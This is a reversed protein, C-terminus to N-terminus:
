SDACRFGLGGYRRSPSGWYRLSARLSAPNANGWGGGRYVRYVREDSYWDSTWEWVNGAMDLAGYPSAGAEFSGVAWTSHRGCGDTSQGDGWVALRCSVTENGWPYKRGDTGRAAKEWEAETPLRKGRYACYARAQNWDVCNIPHQGRDGYGWNCYSSVSRDSPETCRGARVCEAYADVTVETPDISFPDVHVPREDDGMLFTGGPVKVMGSPTSGPEKGERLLALYTQATEEHPNDVPYEVLFAALLRIRERQPLADSTVNPEIRAWKAEIAAKREARARAEAAERERLRRDAEEKEKRLAEAQALLDELSDGGSSPAPRSMGGSMQTAMPLQLESRKLSALLKGVAVAVSRAPNRRDWRAYVDRTRCHSEASLLGLRLQRAGRVVTAQLLNNASVEKGIDCRLAEDAGLRLSRRALARLRERERASAVVVLKDAAGLESALLRRLGRESVGAKRTELEVEIDVRPIDAMWGDIRSEVEDVHVKSALLHGQWNWLFAAPLGNM